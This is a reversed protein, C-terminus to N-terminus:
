KLFPPAALGGVPDARRLALPSPGRPPHRGNTSKSSSRSMLFCISSAPRTQYVMSFKSGRVPGIHQKIARSLLLLEIHHFWSGARPRLPCTGPSAFPPSTNSTPVTASGTNAGERELVSGNHQRLPTMSPQPASVSLMAVCPTLPIFGVIGDRGAYGSRSPSAPPGAASGSSETGFLRRFHSPLELLRFTHRKSRPTTASVWSLAQSQMVTQTAKM